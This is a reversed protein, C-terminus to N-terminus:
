GYDLLRKAIDITQIGASAAFERTDLIFEHACLGHENTYLIKYHGELRKRMYNANLLAVKTAHTLGLGGMMKIYAYSITLISASGWPAASISGISKDGGTAVVPNNPLFAALHQKVAIPGVGPGGGGHPICFTKHLNLHCVDAGIGGPSCLGIQATMNAGDMYVQGGHSHVLDIAKKVHPEFVGFTSPYTIMIAALNSAYKEVKTHLDELDLNGKADCKVPVVRMGAMTASAPNTGHASVPIICIDRHGQGQDQLYRRIVRLGAYEGQAGSNPQVSVADFGTISALDAELESILQKYGAAQEVPAFPHLASFEPWSLPLMETTGNLKMTCSGLSIMSHALSLDKSQLRTIYRLMKTESHHTNFIPHQLFLSTRLLSSPLGSGPQTSSIAADIHKSAEVRAIAAQMQAHRDSGASSSGTESSSKPDLVQLLLALDDKSTAEDLSIGVLEGHFRLNVGYQQCAKAVADKGQRPKILLTDFYTDNIIQHNQSSLAKALLATLYQVKEAIRRLGVPGHYVAYFASMNALLAQATCINSTAKERRIHQERTQLTLRYARGGTRDKSIGVLRGPMKRKFEDSCAFFAAHPGGYGLPVGLRQASGVTVDAGWEGPPKLMTLALLDTAVVVKGGAAHVSDAVRAYDEVSGVTNPYQLLIGFIDETNCLETELANIQKIHIGLGEARSKICALTQPHIHEDVYFTTSKKRNNSYVMAMAEAAATGEDLLSANAIAMGTMDTVLTQFNLLSELRGQSVEAQYPTYSTYWLPNELVNRQIVPPVITNSYGMGIFDRMPVNLKAIDRMRATLQSETLGGNEINLQQSSLIDKPIVGRVFSDLDEYGLENLMKTIDHPEPGIHRRAFTDLPQLVKEATRHQPVMVEEVSEEDAVTQESSSHFFSKGPRSCTELTVCYAPLRRVGIGGHYAAKRCGVSSLNRVRTRSSCKAVALVRLM